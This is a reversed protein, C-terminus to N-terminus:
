SDSKISRNLCVLKVHWILDNRIEQMLMISSFYLFAEIACQPLHTIKEFSAAWNWIQIINILIKVMNLM